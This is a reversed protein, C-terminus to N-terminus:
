GHSGTDPASPVRGPPIPLLGLEEFPIPRPPEETTSVQDTLPAVLVPRPPAPRIPSRVHVKASAEQPPAPRPGPTTFRQPLTRPVGPADAPAELEHSVLSAAVPLPAVVGRTLCLGVLLAFVPLWRWPRPEGGLLSPSREFPMSLSVDGLWTPPKDRVLRPIFWRAPRLRLM